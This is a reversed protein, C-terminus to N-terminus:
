IIYWVLLIARAFCVYCFSYVHERELSSNKEEQCEKLFSM